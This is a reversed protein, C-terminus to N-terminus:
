QEEVVHCARARVRTKMTNRNSARSLHHSGTAAAVRWGLKASSASPSLSSSSLTSPFSLLPLPVYTSNMSLPTTDSVVARYVTELLDKFALKIADEGVEQGFISMVSNVTVMDNRGETM